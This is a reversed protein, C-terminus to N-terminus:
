NKVVRPDTILDVRLDETIPDAQLDKTVEAWLHEMIHHAWGWVAATVWVVETVREQEQSSVAVTTIRISKGVFHIKNGPVLERANVIAITKPHLTRASYKALTLM